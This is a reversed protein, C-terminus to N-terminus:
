WCLTGQAGTESSMPKMRLVVAFLQGLLSASGKLLTEVVLDIGVSDKRMVFPTSSASCAFRAYM